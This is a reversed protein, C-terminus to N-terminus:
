DHKLPVSVGGGQHADQPISRQAMAMLAWGPIASSGGKSGSGTAQSDSRTAGSDNGTAGGASAKGSDGSPNSASCHRASNAAGAATSPGDEAGSGTAQTDSGVAGSAKETSGGGPSKGSASSSDPSHRASDAAGAAASTASIGAGVAAKATMGAGAVAAGAALGTSAATGVSLSPSGSLLGGAVASAHWSLGAITITILFLLLVKQFDPNAPMVLGTLIPSATALIFSLVMLRVGFSIVAGFVKEAMFATYKCAGFPILILGLVSILYFELYTIFVGLALAFFALMVMLEALGALLIKPVNLPNYQAIAADIPKALEFGIRIIASPDKILSTSGQAAGGAKFGAYVFGDVISHIIFQYNAVLFIFFGVKMIKKLLEILVNDECIVWWIAAVAVELTALISLLHMADPYIKSFGGTFAVEFTNLLTTLTGIEIPTPM